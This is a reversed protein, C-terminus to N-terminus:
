MKKQVQTESDSSPYRYALIWRFGLIEVVKGTSVYFFSSVFRMELESCAVVVLECVVLDERTLNSNTEM